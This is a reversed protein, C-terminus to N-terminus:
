RSVIRRYKMTAEMDRPEEFYIREDDLHYRVAHDDNDPLSMHLVTRLMGESIDFDVWMNGDYDKFWKGNRKIYFSYTGDIHIEFRTNETSGEGDWVGELEALFYYCDSTIWFMSREEGTTERIEAYDGLANDYAGADFEECGALMCIGLFAWFIKKAIM